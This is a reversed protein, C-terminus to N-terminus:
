CIPCHTTPSDGKLGVYMPMLLDGGPLQIIKGQAPCPNSSDLSDMQNPVHMQSIETKWSMFDDSFRYIKVDFWDPKEEVPIVSGQLKIVGGDRLGVSQAGGETEPSVM